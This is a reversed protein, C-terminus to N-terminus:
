IVRMTLGCIVDKGNRELQQAQVAEDVETLSPRDVYGHENRFGMWDKMVEKHFKEFNWERKDLLTEDSTWIYTECEAREVEGTKEDMIEVDVKRREYEKGEFIDLRWMDEDTLGSVLQGLVAAHPSECPIVAPYDLGKIRHRQHHLLRAPRSPLRLHQENTPEVTGHCVRHLVEPAM